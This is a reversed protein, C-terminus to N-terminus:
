DEFLSGSGLSDMIDVVSDLHVASEAEAKEKEAQEERAKKEKEALNM